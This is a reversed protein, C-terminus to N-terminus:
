NWATPSLRCSVAVTVSWAPAGILEGVTDQVELSAPTALTEEVPSTDDWPLPDASIVAVAPATVALAVTVTDWVGALMSTASPM